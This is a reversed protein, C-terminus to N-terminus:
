LTVSPIIALSMAAHNPLHSRVWFSVHFELVITIDAVIGVTLCRDDHELYAIPKRMLANTMDATIAVVTMM